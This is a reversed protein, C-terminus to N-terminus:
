GEYDKPPRRLKGENKQQLDFSMIAHVHLCNNKVSFIFLVVCLITNWITMYSMYSTNVTFKLNLTLFFIM